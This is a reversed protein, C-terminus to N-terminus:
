GQEFPPTPGEFRTRRVPRRLHQIGLVVVVFAGVILALWVESGATSPNAPKEPPPGIHEIPGPGVILPAIRGGDGGEYRILRLFVGEFRIARGPESDGQRDSPVLLCFPNQSEDMVWLESLAPFEAIRPQRFRRAVRGQIRLSSGAFAEPHDWLERFDGAHIPGGIPSTVGRRIAPYDGLNVPEIEATSVILSVLALAIM